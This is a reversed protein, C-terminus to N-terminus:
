INITIESEERLEELLVQLQEQQKQDQLQSELDDKYEEFSPIDAEEAEPNMAVIEDYAERLEDETVSPKDMNQEIYKNLKVHKELESRFQEITMNQASLAQELQEESEIQVLQMQTQLETDIEEESAEIGQEEVTQMLVRENVLRDVIDQKLMTLLEEGDESSFDMGQSAYMNAEQQLSTVFLDKNIEEGNVTAIVDPIDDTNLKAESPQEPQEEPVADEPVSDETLPKEPTEGVNEDSENGCAILSFTLGFIMMGTAVKKKM